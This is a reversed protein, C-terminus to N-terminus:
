RCDATFLWGALSRTTLYSSADGSRGTRGAPRAPPSCSPCGPGAGGSAAVGGCPDRSRRACALFLCRWHGSQPTASGARSVGGALGRGALGRGASGAGRSGAGRSGARCSGTRRSGGASVEGRSVGGALGARRSRPRRWAAPSRSRVAPRSEGSSSAHAASTSVGHSASPRPLKMTPKCTDRPQQQVLQILRRSLRRGGYQL